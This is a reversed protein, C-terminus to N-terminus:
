VDFAELRLVVRFICAHISSLDQIIIRIPHGETDFVIVRVTERLLEVFRSVLSEFHLARHAM